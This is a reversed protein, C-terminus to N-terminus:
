QNNYYQWIEFWYALYKWKGWDEYITLAEKDTPIQNQFYRERMFQRFVTDVTLEDYRGALMLLNAAAYNGVGKISLLEKKLENTPLPSRKMAELDVEGLVVRQSLLHIYASRYGMRVNAHFEDFPLAAIVEPSPFTRLAPNGPYPEGYNEVLRKIMGRTGGWQVNTTCITKVVDEFFTPSRLIRGYGRTMEDWPAGRKQCIAYFESLDEDLRLMDWLKHLIEQKESELLLNESEVQVGILSPDDSNVDYIQLIVVNGPSLQEIRRMSNTEADCYNPPLDVWGHSSITAAFNFPSPTTIILDTKQIM